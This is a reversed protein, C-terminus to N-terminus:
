DKSWSGAEELIFVRHSKIYRNGEITDPVVMSRIKPRTLFPSGETVKEPTEAKVTEKAEKDVHAFYGIMGGIGMGLLAGIMASEQTENQMQAMKGGVLGGVSAGFTVSKLVTACGSLNLALLVPWIKLKFYM